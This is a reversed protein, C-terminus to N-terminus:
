SGGDCRLEIRLLREEAGGSAQRRQGLVLARGDEQLAIGTPYGFAADDGLPLEVLADSWPAGIRVGSGRLRPTEKGALAALRAVFFGAAEPVAAAAAAPRTDAVVLTSGDGSFSAAVVHAGRRSLALRRGTAPDYAFAEQFGYPDGRAVVLTRADPAWALPAVWASGGPILATPEDLLLGGHGQRLGATAVAYRGGRGSSWFLLRGGPDLDGYTDPAPDYTLRRSATPAEGLASILHLDWNTPEFATAHRDTEFVLVSGSPALRPRRNEGEEGCTWCVSAGTRRDLRQIQRRGDPGPADYWVVAGGAGLAPRAGSGIVERRAVEPRCGPKPALAVGADVDYVYRAFSEPVAASRAPGGLAAFAASTLLFAVTGFAVAELAARLWRLWSGAPGSARMALALRLALVGLLLALALSPRPQLGLWAGAAAPLAAFGATAARTLHAGREAEPTAFRAAAVVALLLLAGGAAAGAELATWSGGGAALAALVGVPVGAVFAWIRYL